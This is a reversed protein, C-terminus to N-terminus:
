AALVTEYEIPGRYGFSSHLRHANCGNEVWEFMVTRAPLAGASGPLVTVWNM